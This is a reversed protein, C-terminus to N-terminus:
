ADGCALDILRGLIRGGDVRLGNHEYENTLWVRLGRVLGAAQESLEREVYMDEAYVAAAAPVANARLSAEDYLRPWERAALLEAAERLPRLAAYDEFMW